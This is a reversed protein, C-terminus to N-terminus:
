LRIVRKGVYFVSPGEGARSDVQLERYLLKENKKPVDM